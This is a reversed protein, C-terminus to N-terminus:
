EEVIQFHNEGLEEISPLNNRELFSECFKGALIFALVDKATDNYKKMFEGLDGYREESSNVDGIYFTIYSSNPIYLLKKM